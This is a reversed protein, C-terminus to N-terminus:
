GRVRNVRAARTARADGTAGRAGRGREARRPSRLSSSLRGAVVPSSSSSSLLVAARSTGASSRRHDTTILWAFLVRTSRADRARRGDGGARRATAGCLAAVSSFVRSSRRRGAVLFLLLSGGRRSIDRSLQPPSRGRVCNVRAAHTARADGTAGRAGRGREVRPPSQLSSALRGAVVPSSLLLPGGRRAIDRSLQPANTTLPTIIIWIELLSQRRKTRRAARLHM